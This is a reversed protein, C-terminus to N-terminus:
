VPISNDNLGLVLSKFYFSVCYVDSSRCQETKTSICHEFLPNFVLIDGTRLGVSHGVSFTFYKVIQSDKQVQSIYSNKAKTKKPMKKLFIDDQNYVSVISLFADDDEHLELSTNRGSAMSPFFDLFQKMADNKSDDKHSICSPDLQFLKLISKMGAKVMSPIFPSCRASIFNRMSIVAREHKTESFGDFHKMYLGRGNRKPAIGFTLYNQGNNDGEYVVTRKKGRVSVDAPACTELCKLADLFSQFHNYSTSAKRPLLAFVFDDNVEDICIIGGKDEVNDNHVILFPNDKVPICVSDQVNVNEYTPDNYGNKGSFFIKKDKHEDRMVQFNRYDKPSVKIISRFKDNLYQINCIDRKLGDLLVNAATRTRTSTPTKSSFTHCIGKTSKRHTKTNNSNQNCNLEKRKSM